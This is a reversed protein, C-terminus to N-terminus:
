APGLQLSHADLDFKGLNYTMQFCSRIAVCKADATLSFIRKRAFLKLLSQLRFPPFEKRRMGKLM